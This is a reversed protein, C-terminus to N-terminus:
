SADGASLSQVTVAVSVYTKVQDFKIVYLPYHVLPCETDYSASILSKILYMFSQIFCFSSDASVLSIWFPLLPWLFYFDSSEYTIVDCCQGSPLSAIFMFEIM